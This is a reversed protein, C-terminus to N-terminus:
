TLIVTVMVIGGLLAVVILAILLQRHHGLALLGSVKHQFPSHRLHPLRVRPDTGDPASLPISPTQQWRQRLLHHCQAAVPSGEVLLYVTHGFFYNTDSKGLYGKVWTFYEEERLAKAGAGFAFELLKAYATTLEWPSLTHVLVNIVGPRSILRWRRQDPVTGVHDYLLGIGTKVEWRTSAKARQAVLEEVPRGPRASMASAPVAPRRPRPKSRSPRRRAEHPRQNLTESVRDPQRSVRPMEEGLLCRIRSEVTMSLSPASLSPASLSPAKTSRQDAIAASYQDRGLQRYQSLLRAALQHYQDDVPASEDLFILQHRTQGAHSPLVPLFIMEPPRFREGPDADREEYTSFSWSRTPLGAAFLPRLVAEFLEVAPIILHHDLGIASVNRRPDALVCGIIRIACDQCRDVDGEDVRLAVGDPASAIDRLQEIPYPKREMEEPRAAWRFTHTLQLALPGLYAEAGVLAHGNNRGPSDGERVRRLIAARGDGTTVYTFAFPPPDIEGFPELRAYPILFHEWWIQPRPDHFSSTLACMGSPGYGMFVQDVLGSGLQAHDM